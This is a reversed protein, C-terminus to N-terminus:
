PKGVNTLPGHETKVWVKSSDSKTELHYYQKGLAADVQGRKYNINQVILGFGTLSIIWTCIIIYLKFLKFRKM